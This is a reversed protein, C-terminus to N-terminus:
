STKTNSNRKKPNMELQKMLKKKADDITGMVKLADNLRGMITLCISHITLSLFWVHTGDVFEQATFQNGYIRAVFHAAREITEKPVLDAQLEDALTSAEFTASGPIFQPLYYDKTGEENQLTIKM